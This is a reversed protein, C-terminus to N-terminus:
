AFVKSPLPLGVTVTAVVGSTGGGAQVGTLSLTDGERLVRGLGTGLSVGTAGAGFTVSTDADITIEDPLFGPSDADDFGVVVPRSPSGDVFAVLVLAGLTHTASAGPVGPRVKVRQIIPMGTSVRVPQLDLREGSQSVIRYEWVGRYRLSATLLEVIRALAAPLRSSAGHEGWVTTRLTESAVRHEVDVVSLGDVVAGPLLTALDKAALEIAGTEAAPNAMRTAEGEYATATYSGIRTIGDLGVYWGQPAVLHLLRGAPGSERVWHNGLDGTTTTADLTEGSENAADQLVTATKVAYDSAYSKRGLETGWGGAGAAIRYRSRGRYRGSNVVSGSMTLDNIALTVAGSLLEGGDLEVDAWPIGWAPIRLTAGLVTRNNLTARM